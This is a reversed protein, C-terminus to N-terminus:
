QTEEIQETEELWAAVAVSLVEAAPSSRSLTKRAQERSHTIVAEFDKDSLKEGSGSRSILHKLLFFGQSTLFFLRFLVDTLRNFTRRFESAIAERITTIIVDRLSLLTEAHLGLEILASATKSKSKGERAAKEFILTAIPKTVWVGILVTNRSPPPKQSRPSNIDAQQTRLVTDARAAQPSATRERWQAYRDQGVNSHTTHNTYSKEKQQNTNQINQPYQTNLMGTSLMSSVTCFNETLAPYTKRLLHEFL